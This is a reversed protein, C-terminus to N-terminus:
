CGRPPKGDVDGVGQGGAGVGGLPGNDVNRLTSPPRERVELEPVEPPRDDVALYFSLIVLHPV